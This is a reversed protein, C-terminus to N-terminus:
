VVSRRSVNRQCPRVEVVADGDDGGPWGAGIARGDDNEGGLDPRGVSGDGGM